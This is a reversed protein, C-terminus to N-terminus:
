WGVLDQGQVLKANCLYYDNNNKNGLTKSLQKLEVQQNVNFRTSELSAHTCHTLKGQRYAEWCANCEASLYKPIQLGLEISVAPLAGTCSAPQAIQAALNSWLVFSHAARKTM